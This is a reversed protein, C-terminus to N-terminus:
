QDYTSSQNEKNTLRINGFMSPLIFIAQSIVFLFNIGNNLEEFYFYKMVYLYIIWLLLTLSDILVYITSQKNTYFTKYHNYRSKSYFVLSYLIVTVLFFMYRQLINWPLFSLAYTTMLVYYYLSISDNTYKNKM